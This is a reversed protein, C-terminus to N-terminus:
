GRRILEEVIKYIETNPNAEVMGIKRKNNLQHIELRKANDMAFNIKDIINPYININKDYNKYFNKLKNIVENNNMYATTYQCHLLFWLEICPTSTIVQINHRKALNIAKTIITNKNPDTDTDFVCYAADGNKLDLNLEEIGKVLMKVLNLPDTCDGKAYQIKYTKNNDEFNNFYTKETKNKGEVALLIINKPKRRKSVRDKSIRRNHEINKVM